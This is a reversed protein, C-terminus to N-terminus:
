KCNKVTQKRGLNGRHKYERTNIHHKNRPHIDIYSAGCVTPVVVVCPVRVVWVNSVVTVPAVSIVSVLPM